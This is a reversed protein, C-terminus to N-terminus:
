QLLIVAFVRHAGPRRSTDACLPMRYDSAAPPPCFPPPSSLPSRHSRSTAMNTSLTSLLPCSALEAPLRLLSSFPPHSARWCPFATPLRRPTIPLPARFRAHSLIVPPCAFFPPFHVWAVFHPALRRYWPRDWARRSQMQLVNHPPLPPIFCHLLLTLPGHARYFFGPNTHTKSCKLQTQAPM